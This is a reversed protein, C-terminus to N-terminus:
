GFDNDVNASLFNHAFLLVIFQISCVYMRRPFVLPVRDDGKGAIRRIEM